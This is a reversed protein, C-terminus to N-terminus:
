TSIFHYYSREQELDLRTQTAGIYSLMVEPSSSALGILDHHETMWFRTYGFEEGLQALKVSNKLADEPTQNTTIPSPDLISLKM